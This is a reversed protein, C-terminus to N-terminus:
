QVPGPRGHEVEFRALESIRGDPTDIQDMVKVSATWSSATIAHIHYGRQNNLLIANPNNDLAQQQHSHRLSGTGGSSVSTALFESAIPASTPDRLDSPVSGILNQHMDGSAIVVNGPAHRAISQVLRERAFPYGNWNDTSFRPQSEGDDRADFPMVKVQQALFNWRQKGALGADLWREQQEGLMTRAPDYDLSCAWGAERQEITPECLQKSRHSRTDLVHMAILNGFDFRRFYQTTPGYRLAPRVPMHEYWAQMAAAKRAAFAATAGHDKGIDSAWNDDIEHDDFAVIFPAAAHAARLDPDSKYQAYRQRYDALTATEGGAHIRLPHEGRPGFEYIYDGYHYVADLADERALHALATYYGKEFDQCGTSAIRVEDVRAGPMPLTVARGVDSTAAGAHFRYWYPRHPLLGTIEIHLSHAEAPEALTEGSQVIQRFQPDSAVEWAVPAPQPPMGGAPALPDPALRTWIVFGDSAPEGSAVGLAFPDRAFSRGNTGLSSCASLLGVSFASGLFQRRPLILSPM